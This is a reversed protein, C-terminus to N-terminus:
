GQSVPTHEAEPMVNLGSVSHRFLQTHTPIANVGIHRQPSATEPCDQSYPRLIETGYFVLFIKIASYIWEESSLLIIFNNRLKTM